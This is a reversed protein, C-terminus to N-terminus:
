GVFKDLLEAKTMKELEARDADPNEEAVADVIESKKWSMTPVAEDEGKGDGEGDEDGSAHPVTSEPDVVPAAPGDLEPDYPRQPSEGVVQKQTAHLPTDVSEGPRAAEAEETRRERSAELDGVRSTFANNISEGYTPTESM